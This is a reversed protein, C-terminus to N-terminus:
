RRPIVDLPFRVAASQARPDETPTPDRAAQRDPPPPQQALPRPMDATTRELLSAALNRSAGIFAHVAFPWAHTAVNTCQLCRCTRADWRAPGHWSPLWDAPWFSCACGGPRASARM